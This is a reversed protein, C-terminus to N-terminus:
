ISMETYIPILTSTINLILFIHFFMYFLIYIYIFTATYNYCDVYHPNSYNCRYIKFNTNFRKNIAM